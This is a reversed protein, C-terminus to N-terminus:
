PLDGLHVSQQDPQQDRGPAPGPLGYRGGRRMREEDRASQRALRRAQRATVRGPARGAFIRALVFLALVIAMLLAAAGFGRQIYAPQGSRVLMFTLLPLSVQNGDIPNANLYTTYGATLLVPSTEGIGRAAGLIVSTVLGSRATPLVVYWVTRWRPAGLAEAAERLGGPVLRLVVDAARIVIPLMMVSLATAAAFGSQPFGLILILTAYIFLGAVISPLATMAEVITRVLTSGRGGVQTLYVACALGLPITILLSITMMELTGVVAHLVGGKSLPDLPGATTLDETFFNLHWMAPLGRWITFGVVHFLGLFLAAAASWLVTTWIRDRVTPGDASLATLLAYAALFVVYAVVVFGILGSFPALWAFLLITVCLGTSAAGLLNFLEDRHVGGLQRRPPVPGLERPLVTGGGTAPRVSPVVDIQTSVKPRVAVPEREHEGFQHKTEIAM